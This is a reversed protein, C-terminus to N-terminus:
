FIGSFLVGISIPITMPIKIGKYSKSKLRMILMIAVSAAAIPVLSDLLVDRGTFMCVAMLFKIDGAGLIRISFLPYLLTFVILSTVFAGAAAPVGLIFIDMLLGTFFVVGTLLNEVRRYRLDTISGATLFCFLIFNRM